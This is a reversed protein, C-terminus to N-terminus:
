EADMYGSCQDQRRTTAAIPPSAKTVREVNVREFLDDRKIPFTCKSRTEESDGNEETEEMQEM